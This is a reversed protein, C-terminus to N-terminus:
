FNFSVRYEYKERYIKGSIGVARALRLPLRAQSVLMGQVHRVSACLCAPVDDAAGLSEAKKRDIDKAWQGEGVDCKSVFRRFTRKRTLAFYWEVFSVSRKSYM